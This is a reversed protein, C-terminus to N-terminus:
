QVSITVTNASLLNGNGDYVKVVLPLNNGAPVAATLQVNLQDLGAFGPARGTYLVPVSVGGITVTVNEAIGNGVNGDSDPATRMGIGFLLLYVSEGSRRTIVVPVAKGSEFRALAEYSQQGNSKTRLAVGAPIGKGSADATFLSPAVENVTLVGLAIVEDNLEIAIQAKGPLLGAPVLINLQTPSVFFLGAPKGDVSVSVNGLEIPLPLTAAAATTRAMGNGFIAVISDSTAEPTYDSANVSVLQSFATFNATAAPTVVEIFFAEIPNTGTQVGKVKVTAGVTVAGKERNIATHTSVRVVKDDVKWEGVLVASNPLATIKGMLEVFSPPTTGGTAARVEISQADVSGDARLTGKVHVTAGVIAKAKSEDLKTAAVVHVTRADVKWDGIKTTTATATPLEKITGIFSVFVDTGPEAKTEIEVADISGDARLNGKVEVFVGVAVTKREQDIVTKDTVHITRKSVTWDGVKNAAAPLTEIVGKFEIFGTPVGVKVEIEIAEIKGSAQKLGRVEVFAGVAIQGHEQNLKTAAVVTVTKDDVNWDGLLNAAAPLTKIRGQFRVFNPNSETPDEVEIALATVPGDGVRTGFVEVEAGIKVAALNPVIKTKSDVTVMRGSVKWAGIQGTSNPLTEITGDFRVATPLTSPNLKVEVKTANISGDALKIGEVDVLAGAAAAGKEQNLQTTATVHVLRGSITWDGLRGTTSPLKEVLGSFKVQTNPGSTPKLTIILAGISGDNMQAGVIIVEAGIAFNGDTPLFKTTQTVHVTKGGVKWDGIRGPASPLTEIAGSFEIPLAIGPRFKVEILTANIVGNVGQTGEAEVIAGVAPAGREQNIRTKDTVNLKKGSVTWEGIFGATSPLVQIAGQIELTKDQQALSGGAWHLGACLALLLVTVRQIFPQSSRQM